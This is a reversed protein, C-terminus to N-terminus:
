GLGGHGNSCAGFERTATILDGFDQANGMSQITVYEILNTNASPYGGAFIGRINDSTGDLSERADTSDGFDQANGTTAITVYDITNVQTPTRGSAFLGRINSSCSGMRSRVGTLDGFDQIDGKSSITVYKITNVASPDEGGGTIGRTPSSCASLNVLATTLNGFDQANGASPITIFDITNVLGPDTGGGFIGRTSNSFGCLNRRAGTLIGFDVADGTSAITVYDIVDSSLPSSFGGASIGRTSSSAATNATRNVSLDGFDLANSQNSITIYEIQIGAQGGMFLGRHGGHSDRSETDGTPLYFYNETNIKTPGVFEVSGDNGVQPTFNSAGNRTEALTLSIDDIASTSSTNQPWINIYITSSTATFTHSMGGTQTNLDVVELGSISTGLRVSMTGSTVRASFKYVKGITLSVEQYPHGDVGGSGRVVELASSVSSFTIDGSGNASWGTVDTDFTGNTVLEVGDAKQLDGYGTITKGTAETTPDNSDQCCLLVTGPVKKLERTPPIFNDTYLATGKIVRVNSIHGSMPGSGLSQQLDGIILGSSAAGYSHSTTYTSGIQTGDLFM